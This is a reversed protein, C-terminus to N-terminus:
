GVSDTGTWGRVGPGPKGSSAICSNYSARRSANVRSVCPACQYLVHIVSRGAWRAQGHVAAECACISVECPARVAHVCGALGALQRPLNSSLAPKAPDRAGAQRGGRSSGLVLKDGGRM